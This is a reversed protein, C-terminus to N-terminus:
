KTDRSGPPLAACPVYVTGCFASYKDRSIDGLGRFVGSFGMQGFSTAYLADRDFGAAFYKAAICFNPRSGNHFQERKAYISRLKWSRRIFSCLTIICVTPSNIQIILQQSKKVGRPNKYILFVYVITPSLTYLRRTNVM